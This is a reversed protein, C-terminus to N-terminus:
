LSPSNTLATVEQEKIKSLAHRTEKVVDDLNDVGHIKCDRTKHDM